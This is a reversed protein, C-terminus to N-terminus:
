RLEKIAVVSSSTLFRDVTTYKRKFRCDLFCQVPTLDSESATHVSLAYNIGRLVITNFLLDIEAHSITDRKACCELTKYPNTLKLLNTRCTCQFNATVNLPSM